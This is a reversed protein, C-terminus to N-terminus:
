WAKWRHIGMSTETSHGYEVACASAGNGLHLTILRLEKLPRQLFEAAKNAVYAHSTGHFGFRQIGHREAVSTDIAYTKARRPMTAHFATDFVAVHHVDPLQQQTAKIANLSYPNHMPADPIRAEIERLVATDITVASTYRTGGHVVRYGVAEIDFAQIAQLAETVALQHTQLRGDINDGIREVKGHHLRQGNAVDFVSFKLSSSGCNLVLIHM